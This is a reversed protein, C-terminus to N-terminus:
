QNERNTDRRIMSENVGIEWVKVGMERMKM